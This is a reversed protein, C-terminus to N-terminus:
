RLRLVLHLTSENEVGCDNLTKTDDLNRKQFILRQQDVPIGSEVGIQAKAAEVTNSLDTEIVMTKGTLTKVFLTSKKKPKEIHLPLVAGAGIPLTSLQANDDENEIVKYFLRQEHVPYDSLEQIKLKVDRLAASPPFELAIKTESPLLVSFQM